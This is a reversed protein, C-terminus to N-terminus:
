QNLCEDIREILKASGVAKLQKNGLQYYAYQGSAFSVGKAMLLETVDYIQKNKDIIKAQGLDFFDPSVAFYRLSMGDGSEYWLNVAFDGIGFDYDTQNQIQELVDRVTASDMKITIKGAPYRGKTLVFNIGQNEPDSKKSEVRIYQLAEEITVNKLDVNKIVLQLVKHVLRHHSAARADSLDDAHLIPLIILAAVIFALGIKLHM